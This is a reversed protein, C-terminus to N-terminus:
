HYTGCKCFEQIDFFDGLLKFVPLIIKQVIISKSHCIHDCGVYPMARRCNNCVGDGDPDSHTERYGDGTLVFESYGCFKCCAYCTCPPPYCDSAIYYYSHKGEPCSEVTTDSYTETFDAASATLAFILLLVSILAIVKAKKM